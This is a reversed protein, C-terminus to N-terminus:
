RDNRFKRKQQGFGRSQIKQRQEKPLRPKITTRAKRPKGGTGGYEDYLRAALELPCVEFWAWFTTEDGVNHQSEPSERHCWACLPVAYKDDPKRGMGTIPKDIALATMRIHAAESPAGRGCACCSKGRLFKLYGPDLLRPRRQM